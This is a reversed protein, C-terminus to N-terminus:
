YAGRSAIMSPITKAILQLDLMFSQTDVYEVDLAIRKSYSTDNRGSVQWLCTLGPRVSLIKTAKAGFYNLVEEQVVPRPGVISLDGKLVNWLQPLEDLSSKRLFRGFPTVRPDQKLKRIKMWENRMDSNNRLLEHIRTDAEPYMTRFKYCKFPKGGRGIREQSYIIKGRSSVRILFGILLFIPSCLILLFLSFVLDFLRKIPIHKISIDLLLSQQASQTCQNSETM